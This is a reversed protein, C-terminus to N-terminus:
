GPWHAKVLAAIAAIAEVAGRASGAGAALRGLATEVRGRGEPSPQRVAEELVPIEREAAAPDPHAARLAAIQAEIRDRVGADLSINTQTVENVGGFNQVGGHFEVPGNFNM